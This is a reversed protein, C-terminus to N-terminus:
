ASNWYKHPFCPPLHHEAAAGHGRVRAMRECPQTALADTGTDNKHSVAFSPDCAASLSDQHHTCAARWSAAAAHNM